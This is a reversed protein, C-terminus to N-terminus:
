PRTWVRMWTADLIDIFYGQVGESNQFIGAPAVVEACLGGDYDVDLGFDNADPLRIRDRVGDHEFVFCTYGSGCELGSPETLEGSEHLLVSYHDTYDVTAAGLDPASVPNDSSNVTWSGPEQVMPVGSWGEYKNVAFTVKDGIEATNSTQVPVTATGDAVYYWKMSDYRSDVVIAVVTAGSVIIAEGFSGAGYGSIKALLTDMGADYTADFPSGTFLADPVPGTWTDPPACPGTDTDGGSDTDAGTDDGSDTDAGTDDGSNTDAGTDDGTDGGTDGDPADTDAGGSDGPTDAVCVGDEEHTGAGCTLGKGDCAAWFPVLLPVILNPRM